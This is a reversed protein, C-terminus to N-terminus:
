AYDVAIEQTSSMNPLFNSSNGTTEANATSLGDIMVRQDGPRGGHTTLSQTGLSLSNTGGVDQPGSTTIGPVLVVANFHTRGSPIADIVDKAMVRQQRTNQVDVTAADGTVTVTEEIAG